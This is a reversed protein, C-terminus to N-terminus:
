QPHYASMLIKAIADQISDTNSIGIIRRIDTDQKLLRDLESSARELLSQVYEEDLQNRPDFFRKFANAVMSFAEHKALEVKSNQQETLSQIQIQSSLEIAKLKTDILQKERKMEDRQAECKVFAQNKEITLQSNVSSLEKIKCECESIANASQDLYKTLSANKTRLESIIEEYKAQQTKRDTILKENSKKEQEAIQKLLQQIQHERAEKATKLLKATKRWQAIEKTAKDAERKAKEAAEKHEEMELAIQAKQQQAEILLREINRSFEDSSSKETDEPEKTQTNRLQEVESRVRALEEEHKQAENALEAQKMELQQKHEEVVKKHEAEIAEFEESMVHQVRELKNNKAAVKKLKTQLCAIYKVMQEVQSVAEPITEVQLKGLLAVIKEEQLATQDLLDKNAQRLKTITDPIEHSLLPDADLADISLDCRDVVKGLGALFKNVMTIKNDFEIKANKREQENASEVQHYYTAIVSMVQQVRHAIPFDNMRVTGKIKDILSKPLENNTWANVPVEEKKEEVVPPPKFVPKNRQVQLKKKMETMEKNMDMCQKDYVQVLSNLRQIIAITTTREKRYRDLEKRQHNFLNETRAIASKLQTVEGTLAEITVKAKSSNMQEAKARSSNFTLKIDMEDKEIRLQENKEKLDRALGELEELRAASETATKQIEQKSSELSKVQSTLLTVKKRLSSICAMSEKLKEAQLQAKEKLETLEPPPAQPAVPPPPPAADKIQKQVQALKLSQVERRSQDLENQLNKIVTEKNELERRHVEDKRKVDEQVACIKKELENAIKEAEQVKTESKREIAACAQEMKKRAKAQSKALKKFRKVQTVLEAEVDRAEPDESRVSVSQSESIEPVPKLLFGHLVTPSTFPVGFRVQAAEVLNNLMAQLEENDRTKAKLLESSEQIALNMEQMKKENGLKENQLQQKLDSLEATFALSVPEAKEKHSLEEIKMLSIDLRRVLEDKEAVLKGNEKRLDAVIAQIDEFQKLYKMAEDYQRKYGDLELKLRENAALVSQVDVGQQAQSVSLFRDSEPIEGGSASNEDM